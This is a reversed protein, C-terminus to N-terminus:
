SFIATTVDLEDVGILTITGGAHTIVADGDLNNAASAVLDAALAGSVSISDSAIDFDTITDAGESSASDFEFVDANAGGTLEDDGAGGVLTDDNGAGDLTDNGSGGVLSDDGGRGNLYDDNDGGDLTDDGAGGTLSDDGGGGNLVDAENDGNLTDNGSGGNIIDAGDGGSLVDDDAQGNITDDGTGGIINDDGIGGNLLDATGGGNITDNGAGGDVTDSSGGSSINDNGSGANIINVSSNGTINDNFDTGIVNEFNLYTDTSGSEDTGTGSVLNITIGANISSGTIWDSGAGGDRYDTGDRDVFFTDAGSGGYLTDNVGAVGALRDDFNSGYAIEVGSVTTSPSIGVSLSGWLFLKAGGAAGSADIVDIGAGGTIFDSENTLIFLDDGGGGNITDVGAGGDVIDNGGGSWIVDAGGAGRLINNASSGTINDGFDTGVAHEFNLLVDTTGSEDTGTGAGLNLTIGANIGNGLIWDDGSGADRYDASDRDVYFTDAGAGGYLSDSAGGVGALRDDFDTGYAIEVNSITIQPGSGISVNGWLFLTASETAGTVDIADVGAGGNVIDGGGSTLIFLDDGGGGNMSDVGNGGIITDAGGGSWITDNGNSGSIYNASANGTINDNFNTGIVNEFNVFTDVAGSEDTATGAGLNIVLGANIGSGSIWDSGGGGDRYDVSDRDVFITDSGLGGYLTDSIGGAGALRDDFDSGYAIEVGSVTASASSGISASGWLFLKSDTSAGSADLVDTGTGGIIEGGGPTLLIYDDGEGGDLTDAGNSGGDLSDNGEGGVIFDSGGGGTISDNGQFGYALWNEDDPADLINDDPTGLAGNVETTRTYTIATGETGVAAVSAISYVGIMQFTATAGGSTVAVTTFIGNDSISVDGLSFFEGVFAMDEGTEVDFFIDEHFEELTGIYSDIGEGGIMEDAGLGGTLADNGAGGELADAFNGGVLVDDGGLGIINWGVFLDDAILENGNNDGLLETLLGLNNSM